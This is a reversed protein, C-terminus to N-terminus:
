TYKFSGDNNWMCKRCVAAYMGIGGIEVRDTSNTLKVSFHADSNKCNMCVASLKHVEEAISILGIVPTFPQARYDGDLAACIVIKNNNALHNIVQICDPFFQAEDIGIVDYEMLEDKISTLNDSQIVPSKCERGDHTIIVNESTYRNDGAFKVIITSKNAYIYKDVNFMMSSTKEAFMPGIFLKIRGNHTGISNYIM